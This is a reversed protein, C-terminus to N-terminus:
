RVRVRKTAVIIAASQSIPKGSNQSFVRPDYAEQLSSEPMKMEERPLTEEIPKNKQKNKEALTKEILKAVEYHELEIARSHASDGLSDVVDVDAGAAILVELIPLNNREVCMIVACVGCYDTEDVDCGKAILDEIAGKQGLTILDHLPVRRATMMVKVGFIM